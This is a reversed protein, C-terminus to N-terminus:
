HAAPHTHMVSFPQVPQALPLPTQTGSQVVCTATWGFLRGGPEIVAAFMRTQARGGTPERARPSGM